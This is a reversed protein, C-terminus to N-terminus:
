LSQKNLRYFVLVPNSDSELQQSIENIVPYESLGNKGSAISKVVPAPVISLISDSPSSTYLGYFSIPLGNSDITAAGNLYIKGQLSCLVSKIRNDFYSFFLLDGYIYAAHFVKAVNSKLIRDVEQAETDAGIHRTEMKLDVLPKIDGSISDIEYITENYPFYNYVRNGNKIFKGVQGNTSYTHGLLADNFRVRNIVKGDNSIFSYCFHDVTSSDGYGFENNLAIGSDMVCLGQAANPLDITGSYNNQKDYILIKNDSLLYLFDDHIDFDSLSIYEGHGHGLHSYDRIYAGSKDFSAIHSNEHMIYLTDNDVYVKNINGLISQDDTSLVVHGSYKFISDFQESVNEDNNEIEVTFESLTKENKCANNLLVALVMIGLFTFFPNRRM